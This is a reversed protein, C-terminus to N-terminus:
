VPETLPTEFAGVLVKLAGFKVCEKWKFGLTFVFFPDVKLALGLFCKFM